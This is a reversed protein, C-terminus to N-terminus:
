KRTRAYYFLYQQLVGACAPYKELPFSGGYHEDLVKKIWVDVPFASIQHYAFLAICNAVKPGVGKIKLLAKMLDEYCLNDLEELVLDGKCVAIAAESIYPARYGLACAKLEEPTAKSLQEPTPFAFLGGEM